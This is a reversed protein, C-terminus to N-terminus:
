IRKFIEQDYRRANSDYHKNAEEVLQMAQKSFEPNLVSM